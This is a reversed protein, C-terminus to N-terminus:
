QVVHPQSGSVVIAGNHRHCASSRFSSRPHSAGVGPADKRCHVGPLLSVKGLDAKQWRRKPDRDEHKALMANVYDAVSDWSWQRSKHVRVIKQM